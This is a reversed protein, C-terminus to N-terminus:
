KAVLKKQSHKKVIDETFGQRKLSEVRSPIDTQLIQASHSERNGVLFRIVYLWGDISNIQVRTRNKQLTIDKAKKIM